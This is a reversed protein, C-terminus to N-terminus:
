DEFRESSGLITVETRPHQKDYKVRSGDTSVVIKMNDDALVGYHVLIDHLANHLNTIDVKHRTHMYYVAKVNVPYDIPKDLVPMFARCNDQYEAFEKSSAVFPKGTRRNRLIQNNNKKTRPEIPIVFSIVNCEEGYVKEYAVAAM